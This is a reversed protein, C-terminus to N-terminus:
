GEYKEKLIDEIDNPDKSVAWTWTGFNNNEWSVAKCWEDLAAWKEKDKDREIGKVELVLHRGNDFKVLFDPIYKRVAGKHLYDIEFGLHDNKVWAAVSSTKDLARAAAEEWTSDCVCFNIHSKKAATRPKSTYWAGCDRTFRVPESTDYILRYENTNQVVIAKAIHRIIKDLNLRLYLSREGPEDNKVKPNIRVRDSDVVLSVIEILKSFLEHDGSSWGQEKRIYPMLRQVFKFIISQMRQQQALERLSVETLKEMDPQGELIPALEAETPTENANIVLEDIKNIDLNIDESLQHDIRLINPWSMEYQIKERIPEIRFKPPTPRGGTGEGSGEHPLFSFPVGFVNVYEPGLFGDDDQEYSTRRLGRGVVQECLLQSSFARLGLIHTVTKADWGESLMGVSVVHRIQEGPQGVQGVTDVQLRLYSELDKKALKGQQAKESLDSNELDQDDTKSIVKSDIRLTMSPDCLEEILINGKDFAYKIRAATETRNVVSILVPPVESGKQVWDKFTERWDHGLLSYAATLLDPLNEHEDAKRNIDDSIENYIQYFKSKYTEPCPPGDDRVVVRPTKVLGAEIADNLGFDSVIWSFLAEESTKKGTPAFPTASFDFCTQIGRTGNIRDLGSIWKTAEELEEKSLDKPKKTKLEAPVRWAHHAEDNIVIFNSAGAMDGLVQRVYAEDSIPGRKDVTKKKEIQEENDWQLQHWNIIKVKGQRLMKMYGPPVIGFEEYYNGVSTPDLVGLRNRVTLGPAVILINQSFRTDKRNSAKNLIQWSILMSMVVTKGTGTAMKSCLRRFEGGDSPIEIGIKESDPAELFWILTEIAELQCFFFSRLKGDERDHWHNLLRRTISSVGPYGSERWKKVRPRIQNVLPLEIFQGPDNYSRARESAIIYGAPRRGKVIDFSKLDQDYKWHRSPEEHPRTIILKDIQKM